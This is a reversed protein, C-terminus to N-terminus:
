RKRYKLAARIEKEVSKRRKEERKGWIRRGKALAVEVKVHKGKLYVRLPIITLGKEQVKGMLRNIEHRRLLLKRSRTPDQEANHAFDYPSIHCNYLFAEENQIRAYADKLNVRGDRVSKVEPGTLVIGAEFKEIIDYESFAKRNTSIVKQAEENM